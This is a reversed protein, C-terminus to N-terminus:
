QVAQTHALLDGLSTACVEPAYELLADFSYHGTAVAIAPLANAHAAQIDRPTDGVVCVTAQAGALLRAQRAADGILEQRVPFRDSFGGFAFWARLGAEELKIWGISELNGTAVGLRAGKNTLHLLTEKVRPMLLLEMEGRGATVNQRMTELIEPLRAELQEDTLGALRFADRLIMTDTSGHISVGALAVDWGTVQRISSAFSDFHIRDLCRLLTGDIDFLYADQRDWSFGPRIQIRAPCNQATTPM